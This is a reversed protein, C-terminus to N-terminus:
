LGSEPGALEGSGPTWALLCPTGPTPFWSGAGAPLYTPLAFGHLPGVAFRTGQIFRCVGRALARTKARLPRWGLGPSSGWCPHLQPLTGPPSPLGAGLASCTLGRPSRASPTAGVGRHITCRLRGLARVPWSAGM